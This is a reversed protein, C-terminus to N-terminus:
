VSACRLMVYACKSAGELAKELWETDELVSPPSGGVQTATRLFNQPPYTLVSPSPLLTPTMPIAQLTPLAPPIFSDLPTFSHSLPRQGLLTTWDERPTMRPTRPTTPPSPPTLLDPPTLSEPPMFSHPLMRQGLSTTRPTPITSHPLSQQSHPSYPATSFPSIWMLTSPLPQLQPPQLTSHLYQLFTSPPLYQHQHQFMSPEPEQQLNFTSPSLQPLQQFTSLPFQLFQQFTSTPLQPLQQFTSPPSNADLDKFVASLKHLIESQRLSLKVDRYQDVVIYEIQVLSHILILTTEFFVITVSRMGGSFSIELVPSSVTGSTCSSHSGTTGFTTQMSRASTGLFHRAWLFFGWIRHIIQRKQAPKLHTLVIHSSTPPSRACTPKEMQRLTLWRTVSDKLSATSCRKTAQWQKSIPGGM